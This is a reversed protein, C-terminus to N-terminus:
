WKIGELMREVEKEVRPDHDGALSLALSLRDVWEGDYGQVTVPPYEWVEIFVSGDYRNEGVISGDKRFNKLDKKSIAVMREPDPSLMSFHSLANIGCTPFRKESNLADCYLQFAVPNQLYELAMGYLAKGAATFQVVKRKTSDAERKIFGLDDLCVLGLTVSSYSYPVYSSIEKASMGDLNKVQLHYLLLYQAVPTLREAEPAVRIRENAILTPLFAFKDSVVFFVGKEILRQRLYAPCSELVYVLPLGFAGKVKDSTIAMARPTSVTGTPQAFLFEQGLYEGDWFRYSLIDGVALGKLRKKDRPTLRVSRGLISISNM